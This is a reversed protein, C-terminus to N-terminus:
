STLERSLNNRVIVRDAIPLGSEKRFRAASLKCSPQDTKEYM